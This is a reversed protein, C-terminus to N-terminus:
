TDTNSQKIKRYINIDKLLTIIKKRNNQNHDKLQRLTLSEQQTIKSQVNYKKPQSTQFCQQMKMGLKDDHCVGNCVNYNFSLNVYSHSIMNKKVCPKSKPLSYQMIHTSGVLVMM